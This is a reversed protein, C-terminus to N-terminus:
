FLTTFTPVFLLLLSSVTMSVIISVTTMKPASSPEVVAATICGPLDPDCAGSSDTENCDPVMLVDCDPRILDEDGVHLICDWEAVPLVDLANPAAYIGNFTNATIVMVDKAPDEDRPLGLYTKGFETGADLPWTQVTFRDWYKGDDANITEFSAFGSFWDPSPHMSAVAGLWSNDQTISVPSIHQFSEEATYFGTTGSSKGYDHNRGGSISSLEEELKDSYGHEVLKEIGVTVSDGLRWPQNSEIGSYVIEPSWRAQTTPYDVPHRQKTWLNRFTCYYRMQQRDAENRWYESGSLFVLKESPTSRRITDPRSNFQEAVNEGAGNVVSFLLSSVLCVMGFGSMVNNMAGCATSQRVYYCSSSNSKM